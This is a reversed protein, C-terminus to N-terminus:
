FFWIGCQLMIVHTKVFSQQAGNNKYVTAQGQMPFDASSVQEDPSASSMSETCFIPDPDQNTNTLDALDRQLKQENRRVGAHQHRHQQQQHAHQQELLPSRINSSPVTPTSKSRGLPIGNKLLMPDQRDEHERLRTRDEYREKASLSRSRQRQKLKRIPSQSDFSFDLRDLAFLPMIPSKGRNAENGDNRGNEPFSIPTWGSEDSLSQKTQRFGENGTRQARHNTSRGIKDNLNSKVNDKRTPAHGGHTRPMRHDQTEEANVNRGVDFLGAKAMSTNNHGSANSPHLNAAGAKSSGNLGRYQQLQEKGGFVARLAPDSRQIKKGGTEVGISPISSEVTGNDDGVDKGPRAQQRYRRTALAMNSMAGGTTEDMTSLSSEETDNHDLLSKMMGGNRHVQQTKHQMVEQRDQSMAPSRPSLCSSEENSTDDMLSRIVAPPKNGASQQNPFYPNKHYGYAGSKNNNFHQNLSTRPWARQRQVQPPPQPPPVPTPAQSPQLDQRLVVDQTRNTMVETPAGAESGNGNNKNGRFFSGPAFDGRAYTPPASRQPTRSLQYPTMSASNTRSSTNMMIETPATAIDNYTKGVGPRLSSSSQRSKSTTEDLLTNGSMLASCANDPNTPFTRPFMSHIMWSADTGGAGKSNLSRHRRPATSYDQSQQRQKQRDRQRKKKDSCEHSRSSEISSCDDEVGLVISSNQEHHQPRSPAATAM